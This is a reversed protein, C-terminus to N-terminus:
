MGLLWSVLALAFFTVSVGLALRASGPLWPWCALAGLVLLSVALPPM